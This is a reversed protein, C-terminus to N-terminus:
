TVHYIIHKTRIPENLKSFGKTNARNRILTYCHHTYFNRMIFCRINGLQFFNFTSENRQNNCDCKDRLVLLNQFHSTIEFTKM